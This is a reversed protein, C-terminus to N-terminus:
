NEASFLFDNYVNAYPPADYRFRNAPINQNVSIGTFDYTLEQYGLTVASIRRILNDQGVSLVIQRFGESTYRSTLKLKVVQESSGETLPVPEPGVQYAVSYNKKLISLGQRSAMNALAAQSHRKLKQEMIVEFRPIYITLTEGDSVLVQDAPDTFNIRLLNPTRYFITGKMVTDGQTVTLTAEYDQVKGYRDSVEDFFNEATRIEQGWAVGGLILLVLGIVPFRYRKLYNGWRM